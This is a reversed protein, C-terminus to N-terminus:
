QLQRVLNPCPDGGHVFWGLDGSLLGLPFKQVLLNIQSHDLNKERDVTDAENSSQSGAFTSQCPLQSDSEWWRSGKPFGIQNWFDECLTEEPQASFKNKNVNFESSCKELAYGTAEDPDFGALSASHFFEGYEASTAPAEEDELQNDSPHVSAEDASAVLRSRALVSIPRPELTLRRRRLLDERIPDEVSDGDVGLDEVAGGAKGKHRAILAFKSKICPPILNLNQKQKRM